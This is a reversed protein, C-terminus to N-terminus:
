QSILRLTDNPVVDLKVKPNMGYKAIAPLIQDYVAERVAMSFRHYGRHDLPNNSKTPKKQLHEKVEKKKHRLVSRKRPRLKEGNPLERSLHHFPTNPKYM